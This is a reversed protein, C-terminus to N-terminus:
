TTETPTGHVEPYCSFSVTGLWTTPHAFARLSGDVVCDHPPTRAPGPPPHTAVTTDVASVLLWMPWNQITGLRLDLYAWSVTCCIDEHRLMDGMHPFM